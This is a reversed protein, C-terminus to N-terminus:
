RKLDEKNIGLQRCIGNVLGTKLEKKPDPITTFCDGFFLTHHGGKGRSAVVRCTTNNEKALRKIKRIFESGKM